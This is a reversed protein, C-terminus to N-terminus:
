EHTVGGNGKPEETVRRKRKAWAKELNRRRAEEQKKTSKRGGERGIAALYAKALESTDM